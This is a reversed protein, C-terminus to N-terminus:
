GWILYIIFGLMTLTLLSIRHFDWAWNFFWNLWKVKWDILRRLKHPLYEFTMFDIPATAETDNKFFQQLRQYEEHKEQAYRCDEIISKILNKM